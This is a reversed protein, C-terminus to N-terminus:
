DPSSRRCPTQRPDQSAARQLMITRRTRVQSGTRCLSISSTSIILPPRFSSDDSTPGGSSAGVCRSAALSSAQLRAAGALVGWQSGSFDALGQARCYGGSDIKPARIQGHRLVELPRKPDRKADVAPPPGSACPRYFQFMWHSRKWSARM